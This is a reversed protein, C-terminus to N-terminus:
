LLIVILFIGAAIGLSMIVKNRSKEEKEMQVIWRETERIYREFAKAQGEREFVGVCEPFGLVLEGIEGGLSVERLCRGMERSWVAELSEGREPEMAGAIRRLGEGLVPALRGSIRMLVEPMPVGLYSIETQFLRFMHQIEKIYFLKRKRENCLCCSFGATGTLLLAAGVLRFM